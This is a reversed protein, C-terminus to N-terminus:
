VLLGFWTDVQEDKEEQTFDHFQPAQFEFDFPKPTKDLDEPKPTRDQAENVANTCIRLRSPTFVKAAKPTLSYQNSERLVRSSSPKKRATM